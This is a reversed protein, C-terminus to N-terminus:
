NDLYIKHSIGHNDTVTIEIIEKEGQKLLTFIVLRADYELTDLLHETIGKANIHLAQKIGNISHSFMTEVDDGYISLIKNNDYIVFFEDPDSMELAEILLKVNPVILTRAREFEYDKFKGFPYVFDEDRTSFQEIDLSFDAYENFIHLESKDEVKLFLSDSTDNLDDIDCFKELLTSISPIRFSEYAIGDRSTESEGFWDLCMAKPFRVEHFVTREENCSMWLNRDRSKMYISDNLSSLQLLASLNDNTLKM